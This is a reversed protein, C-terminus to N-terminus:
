FSNGVVVKVSMIKNKGLLVMKESMILNVNQVANKKRLYM